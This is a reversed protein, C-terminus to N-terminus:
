LLIHFILASSKINIKHRPHLIIQVFYRRQQSFRSFLALTFPIRGEMSGFSFTLIEFLRSKIFNFSGIIMKYEFKSMTQKIDFTLM